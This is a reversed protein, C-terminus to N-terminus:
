GDHRDGEGEPGDDGMSRLTVGAQFDDHTMLDRVVLMLQDALVIKPFEVEGTYEASIGGPGGNPNPVRRIVVTGLIPWTMRDDPTLGGPLADGHWETV